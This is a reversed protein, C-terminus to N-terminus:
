GSKDHGDGSVVPGGAAGFGTGALYHWSFDEAPLHRLALLHRTGSRAPSYRKQGCLCGWQAVIAAVDNAADHRVHDPM